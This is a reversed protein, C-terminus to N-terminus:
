KLGKQLFEPLARLGSAGAAKMHGGGGLSAAIKSVDVNDKETYFSISWTHNNSMFFNIRVDYDDINDFSDYFDSGGQPMNACICKYGMYQSEFGISRVQRYNRAKIWSLITKGKEVMDAVDMKNSIMQKWIKDEPNNPGLSQVAFEFPRVNKDKLDFVDNLGIYKIALPIEKKPYFYEWTLIIAATGNRRIGKIPKEQKNQLIEEYCRIASIHHDIWTFDKTKNLEFMYDMPFSIDCLIIEEHQAIKDEPINMGYNYGFFEASPFKNRVIAASGKGDNDAIHYICLM